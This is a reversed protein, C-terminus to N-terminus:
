GHCSERSQQSRGVTYIQNGCIAAIPTSRPWIRRMVSRPYGITTTCTTQCCHSAFRPGSHPHIIHNGYLLGEFAMKAHQGPKRRDGGTSGVGAGGGGNVTAAGRQDYHTESRSDVMTGGRTQWPDPATPERAQNHRQEPCLLAHMVTSCYHRSVSWESAAIAPDCRPGPSAVPFCGGPGRQSGAIAAPPGM